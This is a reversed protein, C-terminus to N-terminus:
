SIYLLFFVHIRNDCSSTKGWQKLTVFDKLLQVAVNKVIMIYILENIITTRPVSAKFLHSLSIKPSFRYICVM